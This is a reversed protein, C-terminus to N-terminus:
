SKNTNVNSPLTLVFRLKGCDWIKALGNARCNDAESMAPDYTKLKKELMKHRFNFKHYRIHTDTWCYDPPLEADLTFGNTLYVNGQSWRQDAFSVLTKCMTTNKLFFAIIKSFGGRVSGNSAYRNLTWVGNGNDIFKAVAVLNQASKTTIGYVKSGPGDGQIHFQNLFQKAIYHPITVVNCQRANIRAQQKQHMHHLIMSKILEPSSEWEDEFITLLRIGLANCMKTKNAHYDAKRQNLESHWYLGCYEIALKHKPSYVDLEYPYIIKRTDTDISPDVLRVFDEIQRQGTSTFLKLLPIDFKKLYAYVTSPSIGLELSIESIPRKHTSHQLNLWDRNLLQNTEDGLMGKSYRSANFKELHALNIKSQVDKSQFPKKVGYRVLNTAQQQQAIEPVLATSQVGYTTLTSHRAQKQVQTSQFPKRAGYRTINTQKAREQIADSQSVHEVGYRDIMTNRIKDQVKKSGLPSITGYEEMIAAQQKAKLMPNHMPFVCGFKSLNTAARAAHTEPSDAACKASCFKAYRKSQSTWSTHNGCSCVPRM